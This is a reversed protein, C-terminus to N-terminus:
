GDNRGKSASGACHGVGCWWFGRTEVPGGCEICVGTLVCDLIRKASPASPRDADAYWDGPFPSDIGM